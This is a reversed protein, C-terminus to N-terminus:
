SESSPESSIERDDGPASLTGGVERVGDGFAGVGERAEDGDDGPLRVEVGTESGNGFEGGARQTDRALLRRLCALRALSALTGFLTCSM